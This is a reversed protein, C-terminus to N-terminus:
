LGGRRMTGTEGDQIDNVSGALSVMTQSKRMGSPRESSQSTVSGGSTVRKETGGSRTTTLGRIRSDKALEMPYEASGMREKTNQLPTPKGLRSGPFGLGINAKASPILLRPDMSKSSSSTHLSTRSSDRVLGRAPSSAAATESESNSVLTRKTTPTKPSRLASSPRSSARMKVTSCMDRRVESEQFDAKLRAPSMEVLKKPTVALEEEVRALSRLSPVRQHTTSPRVSLSSRRMSSQPGPARFTGSDEQSGQSSGSTSSRSGHHKESRQQPTYFGHSGLASSSKSKPFPFDETRGESLKSDNSGQGSTIDRQHSWVEADSGYDSVVPTRLLDIDAPNTAISASSATSAGSSARGAVQTRHARSPGAETDRVKRKPTSPLSITPAGVFVDEEEKRGERRIEPSQKPSTNTSLTGLYVLFEIAKVRLEKEAMKLLGAVAEYGGAASFSTLTSPLKVLLVFLTSLIQNTPLSADPFTQTWALVDVLAQELHIHANRRIIVKLSVEVVWTEQLATGIDRSIDEDAGGETADRLGIM